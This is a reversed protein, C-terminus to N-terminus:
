PQPLTRAASPDWSPFVSAHSTDSLTREQLCCFCCLSIYACLSKNKFYSSLLWCKACHGLRQSLCKCGMNSYRLNSDWSWQQNWSGAIASGLLCRTINRITPDRGGLHSLLLANKVGPKMRTWDWSSSANPFYLLLHDSERKNERHIESVM